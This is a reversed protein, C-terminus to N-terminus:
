RGAGHCKDVLGRDGQPLIAVATAGPVVFADLATMTEDSIAVCGSTGSKPSRWLHIFICSGGVQERSTPFDVLYGRRYLPISWMREGTVGKGAMATPVIRNYHASSIDDVCYSQEARLRLYNPGAEDGFGFRRDLAFVGAPARGDGERKVPERRAEAFRRLPWSWGLGKRGIRAPFSRGVRRWALSESDRELLELRAASTSFHDVTVLVLRNMAILWSPCLATAADDRTEITADPTQVAGAAHPTRIPVPPGEAPTTGALAISTM